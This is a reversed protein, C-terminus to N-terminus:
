FSFRFGIQGVRQEPNQFDGSFETPQMFTPDPEGTESDLRTTLFGSPNKANFLNFIEGIAEVQATGFLRFAKSVRLNMQTRKAGRGCNWTKCEGIDKPAKGIGDFAYARAPIDNLEGNQNTDLGEIISVPLASRFIFIPAVQFGGKVQIIASVTGSHRADTRSTPGYIRPDDFLLTADQLNNSNLEDVATGIQSKASALTYSGTLDFGKYMRRKFGIIMAQYKSEAGSIAGRTGGADPNLGLFSLRRAGNPIIRTNIRARTNLDRGQNNVYDITVVTNTMLEHSWGFATQMTYPVQLRPDLWQGILPLSNPDAQNQSAINEIPQGVRYFSGDPNKIGNPDDVNFISGSGIGTADIAPFLVNSNTYGMDQYIGWGGRIVDRGDGRLDYAFGVRPQWNNTDEKPDKGANELGKIGALLGAKGAEQVKVFNPNKSQDIQYGDILDYRIGVNLTLKNTVRWDDQFYFAYQNMPINAEASGGNRTITQLPGNLDNTLHDYSYDNTGTNFTIFLRPEHIYNVGTKFAHGVGGMGAKYWSFDDRFQFKHQETTQPTNGNQGISVGNPFTQQPDGSNAGIHNRFDAYQFIFENLRSGGLVWNHNLNISNFHNESTGWGSPPTQPDAGYPQSNQNRGYRVSLYHSPNLQATVKGTLLTERYPTGFTGDEEPFLGATSVVQFTDQQTREVAGFYHVKDKVIPGGFSGGYQWRKYDQKESGNAKETQTIANMGDNRYLTFWSGHLDNTGSKTVINMVGGNSRGYEAKYRSTVFNFEQIAELPFQQLLGGVTDDNNDGGDIQYNLNRGNGGGIQPAYQTSKTPDSHFGLGVGPITAALNAFQRGNLPLNEIRGVDVVGGVSSSSTQILPSEATVSVTESVGALKLEIDVDITQSVNVILGTRNYPAFGQLEATLEYTGVPLGTLRYVGETDTTESRTFGTSTNKVTVVVGPVAASQADAVRGQINGTTQQAWVPSALALACIAIMSAIIKKM